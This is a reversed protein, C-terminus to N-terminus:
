CNHVTLYRSYLVARIFGTAFQSPEFCSAFQQESTKLHCKLGGASVKQIM